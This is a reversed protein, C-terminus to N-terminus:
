ESRRQEQWGECDSLRYRRVGGFVRSPMGIRRWRRITRTSVGYHRAVIGEDLWPEWGVASARAPLHLLTGFAVPEVRDDGGQMEFPADVIHSM